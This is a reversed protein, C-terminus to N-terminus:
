VIVVCASVEGTVLFRLGAFIGLSRRAAPSLHDSLLEAIM